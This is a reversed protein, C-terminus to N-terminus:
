LIAFHIRDASGHFVLIRTFKFSLLDCCIRIVCTSSDRLICKVTGRTMKFKGKALIGKVMFISWQQRSWQCIKKEDPCWRKNLACDFFLFFFFLSFKMVNFQFLSIPFYCLLLISLELISSPRHIYNQFTTFLSVHFWTIELSGATLCDCTMFVGSGGSVNELHLCTSFLSTFFFAPVLPYVVVDLSATGKSCLNSVMM